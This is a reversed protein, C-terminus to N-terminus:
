RSIAQALLRTEADVGGSIAAVKATGEDLQWRRENAIRQTM